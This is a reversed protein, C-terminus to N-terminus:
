FAESLGPRASSVGIAKGLWKSAFGARWVREVPPTPASIIKPSLTAMAPLRVVFGCGTGPGDSRSMRCFSASALGVTALNERSTADGHTGLRHGNRADTRCPSVEAHM